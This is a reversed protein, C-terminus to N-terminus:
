SLVVAPEVVRVLVAMSFNLVNLKNAFVTVALIEKGPKSQQHETGSLYLRWGM